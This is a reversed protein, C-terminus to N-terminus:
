TPLGTLAPAGTSARIILTPQYVIRKAPPAEGTIQAILLSVLQRAIDYVPQDLTTLPPNSFRADRVGDFGTVAIDKGVLFGAEDIARLAGFATEDNVCVIADPPDPISLLRKAAAYGGSSTQDGEQVYVPEFPLNAQVLGSIFGAFRDVQIKYNSPGGIYALRTFGNGALHLVLRIFGSISDVEVSPYDYVSGQGSQIPDVPRTRELTSFPVRKETLFQVRWDEVRMRDLIVGDVKNNEIWKRYANKEEEQGPPAAAILLDCLRAATEDGLGEIFESFFSDAFRPSDVPM